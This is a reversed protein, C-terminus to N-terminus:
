TDAFKEARTAICEVVPDADEATSATPVEVTFEASTAKGDITVDTVEAWLVVRDDVQLPIGKVDVVAM